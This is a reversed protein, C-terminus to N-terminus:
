RHLLQSLTRNWGELDYKPLEEVRKAAPQPALFYGVWILIACYYAASNVLTWTESLVSGFQGRITIAAMEVSVFIGFGLAIGFVYHGCSLGFYNSFVFLLCLLGCQIFRVSRELTIVAEVLGNGESGQSSAAVVFAVALLVVAAWGFLLSGLRRIADYRRFVNGYIEYIVAFGLASSIAQVRWYMWFYNAYTMRHYVYFLVGFRFVHFLTYALFWPCEGVLRRRLMAICILAQLIPGSIWLVYHLPTLHM